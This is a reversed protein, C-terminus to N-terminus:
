EGRSAPGPTLRAYASRNNLIHSGCQVDKGAARPRLRDGRWDLTGPEATNRETRESRAGDRVYTVIRILGVAVYNYSLASSVGLVKGSSLRMEWAGTRAEPAALPSGLRRPAPAATASGAYSLVASLFWALKAHRGLMSGIAAARSRDHRSATKKDALVPHFNM